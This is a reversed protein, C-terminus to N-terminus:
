YHCPSWNMGRLRWQRRLHRRFASEVSNHFPKFREALGARRNIKQDLTGRAISALWTLRVHTTNVMRCGDFKIRRPAREIYDRIENTNM